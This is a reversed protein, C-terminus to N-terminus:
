SIRWERMRQVIERLIEVDSAPRSMGQPHPADHRLWGQLKLLQAASHKYAPVPPRFVFFGLYQLLDNL